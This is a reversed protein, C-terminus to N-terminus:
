PVRTTAYVIQTTRQTGRAFTSRTTIKFLHATLDPGQWRASNGLWTVPEYEVVYLSGDATTAHDVQSWDPTVTSIEGARYYENALKFDPFEPKGDETIDLIVAEIERLALENKGLTIAQFQHNGAMLNEMRAMNMGSMGLLTMILLFILAMFLAVGQQQKPQQRGPKQTSCM